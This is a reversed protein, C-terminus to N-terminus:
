LESYAGLFTYASMDSDLEALLARVEPSAVNAEIDVTFSYEFDSGPIPRSEIKTLNLGHAAFRALLGSLTGPRHPLEVIMSVRNAGPYIELERSVCIFRTYNSDSDSIGSMIASLGYLEACEPSSIAALDRRGSVSVLRAAEATNSVPTAKITERHEALFKGCQGLAQPHSIIERIESLAVGPMALLKHSIHLKLGRVIYGGRRKILDFVDHVSGYSSNEIPLVGYRVAGSEVERFVDAFAPVMKIEPWAFLRQVAIQSYAGEVGQCAVPVDSPFIAQTGSLAEEIRRALPAERSSLSRQYMKSLEMLDRYLYAAYDAFEEPVRSRARALVERERAPDYTAKGTARKAAAVEASVQMREAFLRTMGEDIEDIRKRCESLDM